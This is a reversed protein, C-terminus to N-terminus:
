TIESIELFSATSNGYLWNKNEYEQKTFM